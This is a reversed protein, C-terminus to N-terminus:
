QGIFDTASWNIQGPTESISSKHRVVSDLVKTIQRDEPSKEKFDEGLHTHKCVFICCSTNPM